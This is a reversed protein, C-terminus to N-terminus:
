WDDSTNEGRAAIASLDFGSQTQSHVAPPPAGPSVGGGAEEVGAQLEPPCLVSTAPPAHAAGALQGLQNTVAGFVSEAAMLLPTPTVCKPRCSRDVVVDGRRALVMIGSLVKVDLVNLAEAGLGVLMGLPLRTHGFRTIQEKMVYVIGAEIRAPADFGCGAKRAMADVKCFGLGKEKVLDFPHTEMLQQAGMRRKRAAKLVISVQWRGFGLGDLYQQDEFTPARSVEDWSDRIAMAREPGVGAAKTLPDEAGPEPPNKLVALM